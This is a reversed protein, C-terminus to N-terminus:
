RVSVYVLTQNVLQYAIEGFTIPGAFAEIRKGEFGGYLFNLICNCSFVSSADTIGELHEHFAASYDTINKAFKYEIGAFVPAYFNVAGEEINRFSINIGSGSYNGILPLKTDIDNEAIYDAFVTEKGDIFCNKVSFGHDSDSFTIIPSTEDQDFINVINVSITKGGPVELHMAVAEGAFIEGTLGNVAIPTQGSAELNVGSIWGAINKLFLDKFSDANEAYERHVASDFPIIVISFGKDFADAAVNGIGATDYNKVAFNEYPFETVFLLEDSIKGGDKAMFYETSGGIWKGKPLRRLLNETGAIHLLKGETIQKEAEGFKM